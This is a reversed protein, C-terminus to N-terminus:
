SLSLIDIEEKSKKNKNAMDEDDDNNILKIDGIKYLRIYIGIIFSNFKEKIKNLDIFEDIGYKNNNESFTIMRGYEKIEYYDNDLNFISFVVSAHINEFNNVNILYLSMLSENDNTNNITLETKWLHGGVNFRPSCYVPENMNNLNQITWEFFKENIIRYM